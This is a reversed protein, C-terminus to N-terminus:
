RLCSGAVTQRRPHDCTWETIKGVEVTKVVQDTTTDIVSMSSSGDGTVYVTRGDRRIAMGHAGEAVPITAVVKRAATDIVSITNDAFNGVYAKQVASAIGSASLVPVATLPLRTLVFRAFFLM